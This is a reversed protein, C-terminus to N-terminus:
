GVAIGELAFEQEADVVIPAFDPNEPLLELRGNQRQLRKVTM